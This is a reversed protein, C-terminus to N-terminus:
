TEEEVTKSLAGHTILTVIKGFARLIVASRDRHGAQWSSQEAKAGASFSDLTVRFGAVRVKPM